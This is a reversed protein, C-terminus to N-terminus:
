GHPEGVREGRLDRGAGPGASQVVERPLLHEREFLVVADDLGRDGASVVVVHPDLRAARAQAHRAGARVADIVQLDALVDPRRHQRRLDLPERQQRWARRRAADTELDDGIGIIQVLVLRVFVQVVVYAPLCRRQWAPGDCRALWRRRRGPLLQELRDGAVRRRSWVRRRWGRSLSLDEEHDVDVRRARRVSSDDIQHGALALGIALPALRAGCAHHGALHLAQRWPRISLDEFSQEAGARM